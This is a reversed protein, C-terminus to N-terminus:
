SDNVSRKLTQLEHAMAERLKARLRALRGEVARASLGHREGIEQLPLRDFYRSGILAADAAELKRLAAELCALLEEEDSAAPAPGPASGSWWEAYRRLAHLYRGGKRRLDAAAHRAALALWNWLAAADPMVRAHRVLRLWVAQAIERALSEDGAALAFCYRNIRAGWEAHLWAFAAEDGTRLAATLQRVDMFDAVERAPLPPM